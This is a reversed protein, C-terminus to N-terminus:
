DDFSKTSGGDIAGRPSEGVGDCHKTRRGEALVCARALRQLMKEEEQAIAQQRTEVISQIVFEELAAAEDKRARGEEEGRSEAVGVGDTM